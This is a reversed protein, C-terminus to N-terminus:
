QSWEKKSPCIDQVPCEDCYDNHDTLICGWPADEKIWKVHIPMTDCIRTCLEQLKKTEIDLKVRQIRTLNDYEEQTLIYQM